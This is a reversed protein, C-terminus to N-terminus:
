TLIDLNIEGGTQTKQQAKYPHNGVSRKTLPAYYAGHLTNLDWRLYSTKEHFLAQFIHQPKNCQM